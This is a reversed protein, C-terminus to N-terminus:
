ISSNKHQNSTLYRALIAISGAKSPASVHVLSTKLKGVRPLLGAYSETLTKM